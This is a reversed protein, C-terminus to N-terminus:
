QIQILVESKIRNIVENLDSNTDINNFENVFQQSKWIMNGNTEIIALPFPSNILTTKATQNVELTLDQLIESLESKRKRSTWITYIIILTYLFISLPLLRYSFICLAILLTAIIFLYIKTKSVFHESNIINRNPM